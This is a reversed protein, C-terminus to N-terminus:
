VFILTFLKKSDNYVKTGNTVYITCYKTYTLKHSYLRMKVRIIECEPSTTIPLFVYWFNPQFWLKYKTYYAGHLHHSQM